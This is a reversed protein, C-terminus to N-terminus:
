KLQKIKEDMLDHLRALLRRQRVGHEGRSVLEGFAAKIETISPSLQELHDASFQTNTITLYERNSHEMYARALRVADDAQMIPSLKVRQWRTQLSPFRQELTNVVTEQGTLIVFLRDWNFINVLGKLANIYDNQASQTLTQVDEFEDLLLVLKTLIKEAALMDVLTKIYPFALVPTLKEASWINYRKRETAVPLSGCLWRVLFQAAEETLKKEADPLLTQSRQAMTGLFRGLDTGQIQEPPHPRKALLTILSDTGIMLVLYEVLHRAAIPQREVYRFRLEPLKGAQKLRELEYDLHQLFNSKGLGSAAEVVWLGGTGDPPSTSLFRNFTAQLTNLEPRPVYVERCVRGQVPFPNGAYELRSFGAPQQSAPTESNNIQIFSM